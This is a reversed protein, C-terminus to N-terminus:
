VQQARSTDRSSTVFVRWIPTHKSRRMNSQTYSVFRIGDLIDADCSRLEERWRRANHRTLKNRLAVADSRNANSARQQQPKREM